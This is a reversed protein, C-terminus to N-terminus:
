SSWRMDSTFRRFQGDPMTVCSHFTMTNFDEVHVVTIKDAEQWLVLFISNCLERVEIAVTEESGARPGTLVRYHMHDAAPYHQEVDAVGIDFILTKGTAPYNSLCVGQATTNHM